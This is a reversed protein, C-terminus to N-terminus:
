GEGRARGHRLALWLLDGAVGSWFCAQYAQQWPMLWLLPNASSFPRFPQMDAHM